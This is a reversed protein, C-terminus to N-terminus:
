RRSRGADSLAAELAPDHGARYAEFTWPAAIDPSLSTVRVPYRDNLWFCTERDRCPGNYVHRGTSYNVRLMTNPLNFSQGEAWFDLRDGVPEGVIRVQDGGAEKVAAVTTIAASFTWGSTLVYIPARRATKPLSRAFNYTSTYDGGGNLRMDLIVFSPQGREIASTCQELFRAIPGEDADANHALQIYYGSALTEAWFLNKAAHFFASKADRARLFSTMKTDALQDPFLLRSTNSVWASRGRLEAPVAESIRKGDPTVGDLLLQGRSSALGAAQLMAPSELLPLLQLRRFNDAGGRYKRLGRFVDEVTRGEIRDIRAGLFREFGPGAYLVYLGDAFLYTRLPIRPTNKMFANRDVATHGNDALAAIEAVRLVFQEHSMRRAKRALSALMSKASARASPKYSRDYDPFSLLYRADAEQGLAEDKAEGPVPGPPGYGFHQQLAADFADDSPSAAAMWGPFITFALITTSTVAWKM